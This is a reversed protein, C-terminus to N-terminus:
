GKIVIFKEKLLYKVTAVFEVKKNMILPIIIEKKDKTIIRLIVQVKKGKSVIAEKLECKEIMSFETKQGEGILVKEDMDITLGYSFILKFHRLGFGCLLIGILIGIYNYKSLYGTYIQFSGLLIFPIGTSLWVIIKQIELRFKKRGNLKEIKKENVKKIFDEFFFM